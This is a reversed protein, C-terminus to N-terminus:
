AFLAPSSRIARVCRNGSPTVMLLAFGTLFGHCRHLVDQDLLAGAFPHSRLAFVITAMQDCKISERVCISRHTVELLFFPM